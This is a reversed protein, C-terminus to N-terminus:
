RGASAHPIGQFGIVDGAAIGRITGSDIKVLAPYTAPFQAVTRGSSLGLVLSAFAFFAVAYM